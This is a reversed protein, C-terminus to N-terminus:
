KFSCNAILLDCNAFAKKRLGSGLKGFRTFTILHPCCRRVLPASGEGKPSMIVSKKSTDNQLFSVVMLLIFDGLSKTRM